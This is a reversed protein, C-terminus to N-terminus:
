IPHLLQTDGYDLLITNSSNTTIDFQVNLPPCGVNNSVVATATPTPSITINNNLSQQQICGNADTISPM